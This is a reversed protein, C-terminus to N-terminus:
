LGPIVVRLASSDAERVERTASSWRWELCDAMLAEGLAPTPQRYRQRASVFLPLSYCVVGLERHYYESLVPSPYPTVGVKVM